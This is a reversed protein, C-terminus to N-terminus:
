QRTRQLRCHSHTTKTDGTHSPVNCLRKLTLRPFLLYTMALSLLCYPPKSTPFMEKIEMLGDKVSNNLTLKFLRGFSLSTLPLIFDEDVWLPSTNKVEQRDGWQLNQDKGVQLYTLLHTNPSGPRKRTWVELEPNGQRYPRSLFFPNILSAPPIRSFVFPLLSPHDMYEDTEVREGEQGSKSYKIRYSLSLAWLGGKGRKRDSRSIGKPTRGGNRGQYSSRPSLQSSRHM